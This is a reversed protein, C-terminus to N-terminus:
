HERKWFNRCHPMKEDWVVGHVRYHSEAGIQLLVLCRELEGYLNNSADIKVKRGHRTLLILIDVVVPAAPGPMM